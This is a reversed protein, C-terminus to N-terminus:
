LREDSSDFLFKLIVLGIVVGAAVYLGTKVAADDLRALRSIIEPLALLALTGLIVIVKLKAINGRMRQPTLVTEHDDDADCWGCITGNIARGCNACVVSGGSVDRLMPADLVERAAELEDRRVMVAVGGGAISTEPRFGGFASDRVIGSIDAAELTSVAIEAEHLHSFKRLEVLDDAAM